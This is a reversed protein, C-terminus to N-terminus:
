KKRKMIIEMSKYEKQDAGIDFMEMRRTDNDVITYTERVPKAKGTMPDTMEGKLTIVKANGDFSGRMSMIGTGMNDVWTSVVKDAANDYGTTSIGEFQENMMEGRHITQQYRGGLIMKSEAMLQFKQSNKDNASMWMTMEEHWTGNESAFMKHVDGPTMYEKWATMMAVTDVPKEAIPESVSTSDSLIAPKDLAKDEAEKCSAFLLAAVIAPLIIKKM